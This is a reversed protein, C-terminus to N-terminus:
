EPVWGMLWLSKDADRIKAILERAQQLGKVFGEEYEPRGTMGRHSEHWAIEQQLAAEIHKM